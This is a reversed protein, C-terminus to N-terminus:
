IYLSLQIPICYIKGPYANVDIIAYKQTDNEIVVDVGLLNMGFALRLTSAIRELTDPRPINKPTDQDEPDLVSLKSQSSAKSIDSSDFFITNGDGAMFNKLSPREVFYHKEGVIFIKYLVANHNIFSQAVCPAKCDKLNSENFVILMEHAQKSGHGLQPKCIFPYEVKAKLLEEKTKQQNNSTIECFNPTFVGFQCLNTSQIISYCKYRDLLQRVNPIPDIVVLDPHSNIYSEVNKIVNISQLM